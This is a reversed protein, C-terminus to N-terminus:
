NNTANLLRMLSVNKCDYRAVEERVHEKFYKFFKAIKEDESLGEYNDIRHGYMQDKYQYLFAKKTRKEGNIVIGAAFQYVLDFTQDRQTAMRFHRPDELFLVEYAEDEFKRDDRDKQTLPRYKDPDYDEEHGDLFDGLQLEQGCSCSVTIALGLGTPTFSYTFKDCAMGMMCDKHQKEFKKLMKRDNGTIEFFLGKEKEDM